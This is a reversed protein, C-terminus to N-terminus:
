FRFTLDLSPQILVRALTLTATVPPDGSAGVLTRDLLVHLRLGLGLHVRRHLVVALRGLAVLGGTVANVFRADVGIEGRDGFVSLLSIGGLASVEFRTWHWRAGALVALPFVQFFGDREAPKGSTQWGTEVRLRFWRGLDAEFAADAGASLTRRDLGILGSGGFSLGFRLPRPSAARPVVSPAVPVTVSRAPPSVEVPPLAPAVKPLLTLPRPPPSAPPSPSPEDPPPSALDLGLLISCKLLIVDALLAMSTGRPVEVRSAAIPARAPPIEIRLQYTPIRGPVRVIRVVRSRDGPRPPGAHWGASGPLRLRAARHLARDLARAAAPASADVIPLVYVPPADPEAAVLAIGAVVLALATM